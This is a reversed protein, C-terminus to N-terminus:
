KIHIIEAKLIKKTESDVSFREDTRYGIVWIVRSDCLLLPQKQREILPLKLNKFFESLKKSKGKMGFPHFFDGKEPMRIELPWHIKEYDFYAIDTNEFDLKGPKYDLIGLKLNMDSLNLEIGMKVEEESIYRNIDDQSEASNEVLILHNYSRHLSYNQSHYVAGSPKDLHQIIDSVTSSNFAYPNLIEHLITTRAKLKILKQVSIKFVGYEAPELLENKFNSIAQDYIWEQENFRIMNESFTNELSPNIEKLIPIVKNRIKNRHYKNETNSKDERYTIKENIAFNIVDNKSAFLLPRIIKSNENIAKIGHLGKIGCGQVLNFLITEISDNLHHATAIYDFKEKVLLNELWEYRLSRALMQTSSKSKKKLSNVDFTQVFFEVDLQAALSKVFSEDEESDAARLKFNCHALAFNIAAAKLLHALVVSDVGSSIALIIKDNKLDIIKSIYDVFRDLM